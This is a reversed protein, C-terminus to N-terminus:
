GANAEPVGGWISNGSYVQDILLYVLTVPHICTCTFM